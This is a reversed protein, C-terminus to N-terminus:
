RAWLHCEGYGGGAVYRGDPSFAVAVPPKATHFTNQVTGSAGFSVLVTNRGDVKGGVAIYTGDQDYAIPFVSDIGKVQEPQDQNPGSFSWVHASDHEATLLTDGRASLEVTHATPLRHVRKDTSLDWVEVPAGGIALLPKTSAFSVSAPFQVGHKIRRLERRSDVDWLRVTADQSSCSALVGDASWAVSDCGSRHGSLSGVEKLTVPDVLRVVGDDCGAAILKGDPSFAVDIVGTRIGDVVSKRKTTVDWVVLYESRDSSGSFGGGALLRSDPSFAMTRLSSGSLRALKEGDRGDRILYFGGGVVAAGALAAAAGLLTRRPMGGPAPPQTA